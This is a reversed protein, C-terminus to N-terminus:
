LGLSSLSQLGLNETAEPTVLKLPKLGVEPLGREGPFARPSSCATLACTHLSVQLASLMMTLADSCHSWWESPTVKLM